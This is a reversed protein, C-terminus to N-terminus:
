YDDGGGATEMHWNYASTSGLSEVKVYMPPTQASASGGTTINCSGSSTSAQPQLNVLDGRASTPFSLFFKTIITQGRTGTSSAFQCETNTTAFGHNSDNIYQTYFEIGASNVLKLMLRENSLTTGVYFGVEVLIKCSPPVSFEVNLTTTDKDINKYTTDITRSYAHDAFFSKCALIRPIDNIESYINFQKIPITTPYVVDTTPILGVSTDSLHLSSAFIQNNSLNSNIVGCTIAGTTLSSCDIAGNDLRILLSGGYGFISGNNIISDISGYGVNIVGNLTTPGEMNEADLNVCGIDTAGIIDGNNMSLNGGDTDIYGGNTEIGTNSIEMTTAGTRPLQILDTKLLDTNLQVCDIINFDITGSHNNITLNECTIDGGETNINGGGTLIDGGETDIVNGGTLLGLCNIIGTPQNLTITPVGSLQIYITGNTISFNNGLINNCTIDECDLDASLALNSFSAYGGNTLNHSNMNFVEAGGVSMELEGGILTDGGLTITNSAESVVLMGGSGVSLYNSITINGITLTDTSPLYSAKATAGDYFLVINKLTTIGGITLAGTTNININSALKTGDITANAIKDNTIQLDQIMNTTITDDAIPVANFELKNTISNKCLVQGASGENDDITLSDINGVINIEDFDARNLGNITRDGFKTRNM